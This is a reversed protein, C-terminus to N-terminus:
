SQFRTNKTCQYQVHIIRGKEPRLKRIKTQCPKNPDGQLSQCEKIKWYDMNWPACWLAELLLGTILWWKRFLGRWPIQADWYICDTAHQITDWQFNDLYLESQQIFHNLFVEYCKESLQSHLWSASDNSIYGSTICWGVLVSWETCSWSAMLLWAHENTRLQLHPSTHEPM